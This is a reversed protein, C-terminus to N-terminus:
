TFVWKQLLQIINRYILLSSMFHELSYAHIRPTHKFLLLSFFFFEMVSRPLGAMWNVSSCKSSDALCDPLTKKRNEHMQIWLIGSLSKNDGLVGLPVM